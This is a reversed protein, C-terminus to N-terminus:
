GMGSFSIIVLKALDDPAPPCFTFLVEVLVIKCQDTPSECTKVKSSFSRTRSFNTLLILLLSSTTIIASSSRECNCFRREATERNCIKTASAKCIGLLRLGVRGVLADFNFLISDLFIRECTFAPRRVM